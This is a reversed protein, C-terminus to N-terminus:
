RAFLCLTHTTVPWERIKYKNAFRVFAKWMCLFNKITGSAYAQKQLSQLDRELDERSVPEEDSIGSGAHLSVQDDEPVAEVTHTGLNKFM